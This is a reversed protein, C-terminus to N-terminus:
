FPLFHELQILYQRGAVRYYDKHDKKMQIDTDGPYVYGWMELFLQQEITLSFVHICDLQKGNTNKKRGGNAKM